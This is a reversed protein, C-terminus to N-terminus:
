RTTSVWDRDFLLDGLFIIGVVILIVSFAIDVNVFGGLGVILLTAAWIFDWTSPNPWDPFSVRVINGLLSLMGAGAFVWSWATAGGMHPLISLGDAGFVLGAWIFVTAWYIGNIRKTMTHGVENIEIAM